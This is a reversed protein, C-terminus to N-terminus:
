TACRFQRTQLLLHSLSTFTPTTETYWSVGRPAVFIPYGLEEQLEMEESAGEWIQPEELIGLDLHAISNLSAECLNSVFDAPIYGRLRVTRVHSVVPTRLNNATPPGSVVGKTGLGSEGVVELTALHPLSLIANWITAPSKSTVTLCLHRVCPALRAWGQSKGATRYLARIAANFKANRRDFDLDNGAFSRYTWEGRLVDDLYMRPVHQYTTLGFLKHHADQRHLEINRWLQCQAYNRFYKSVKAVNTLDNPRLYGMVENILETPFSQLSAM